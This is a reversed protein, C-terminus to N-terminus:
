GGTGRAPAAGGASGRVRTTAPVSAALNAASVTFTPREIGKEARVAWMADFVIGFDPKEAPNADFYHSTSMDTEESTDFLVELTVDALADPKDAVQQLARTFAEFAVVAPGKDDIAGRGILFDMPVGKYLRQEVRPAFPNWSDDGPPVTDLHCIVSVKRKGTGARYGFVWYPTKDDGGHWEFSRVLAKGNKDQIADAKKQFYAQIKQLAAIVENENSGDEKRWTQQAVLETTGEVIVEIWSQDAAAAVPTPKNDTAM